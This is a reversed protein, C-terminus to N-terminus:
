NSFFRHVKQYRGNGIGLSKGNDEDVKQNMSNLQTKWYGTCLNILLLLYPFESPVERGVGNEDENFLNFGLGSLVIEAHDTPDEVVHNNAAEWLFNNGDCGAVEM